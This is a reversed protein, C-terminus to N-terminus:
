DRIYVRIFRWAFRGGDHITTAVYLHFEGNGDSNPPDCTFPLEASGDAPYDGYGYDYATNPAPPDISLRVGTTNSSTWTLRIYGPTATGNDDTCSARSPGKLTDVVPDGTGASPSTRPPPADTPETTPGLTPEVTLQGTPDPTPTQTAQSTAGASASPGPTPTAAPSGGLGFVLGIGVLLVLLAVAAGILIPRM